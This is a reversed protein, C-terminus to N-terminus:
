VEFDYEMRESTMTINAASNRDMFVAKAHTM